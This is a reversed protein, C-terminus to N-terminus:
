FLFQTIAQPAPLVIVILLALAFLGLFDRGNNLESVDNLAPEDVSPILFLFVAWLLLDRQIFVLGLILLRAIQGIMAGGRQGFMAHVMHGGDLQGIPTLNLATFLVGLCGAIAVPHLNLGQGATLLNGLALKSLLSILLSRSPDFSEFNLLSSEATLAVPTSHALGWLAIPVAVVLGALPGAVAVDFLSQRNPYPSRSQIFAGFTGIPFAANPPVPILYPLTTRIGYRRAVFYHGLEHVGLFALLALAYPLGTQFAAFSQPFERQALPKDIMAGAIVMTLFTAILMGAALLPRTMKTPKAGAGKAQPNPVLVFFPKGNMGEQLVVLFRDRFYSEVNEQVTKYAVEASTRLQGRCILAQPRQEIGQLYFVSWPFCNQLNAEEEKDLTRVPPRPEALPSIAAAAAPPQSKASAADPKAPRGWQVLFWYLVSSVVFAGTLVLLLATEDGSNRYTSIWGAWVFAPIMMVLWLLWVPTRTLNAVSRQVIIYTFIGILLLWIM